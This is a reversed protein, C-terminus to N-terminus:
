RSKVLRFDTFKLIVKFAIKLRHIAKGIVKRSTELISLALKFVTKLLRMRGHSARVLSKNM